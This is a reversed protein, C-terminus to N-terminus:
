ESEDLIAFSLCTSFLLGGVLLPPSPFALMLFGTGTWLTRVLRRKARYRGGFRRFHAHKSLKKDDFFDRQYWSPLLASLALQIHFSIFAKFM